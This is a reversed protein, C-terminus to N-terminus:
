KSKAAYWPRKSEAVSPESMLKDGGSAREYMSGYADDATIDSSDIKADDRLDEAEKKLAANEVERRGEERLKADRFLGAFMRCLDLVSNVLTLIGKLQLM